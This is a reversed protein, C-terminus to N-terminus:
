KKKYIKNHHAFDLFTIQNKQKDLKFTLVFSSNIHVRKQNHMPTRLNKYHEIENVNSLIIEQMKKELAESQHKNRTKIKHIKKHLNKTITYNM